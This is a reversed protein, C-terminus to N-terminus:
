QKKPKSPIKASMRIRANLVGIVRQIYAVTVHQYETREDSDIKRAEEGLKAALDVQSLGNAIRLYILQKGINIFEFHRPLKGDVLQEYAAIEKRAAKLQRIDPIMLRKREKRGLGDRKYKQSKKLLQSTLQSLKRKATKYEWDSLIFSM